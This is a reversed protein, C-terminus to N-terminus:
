GTVLFGGPHQTPGKSAAISYLTRLEWREETIVNHVEVSSRGRREIATEAALKLNSFKSDTEGEISVVFPHIEDFRTVPSTNSLTM